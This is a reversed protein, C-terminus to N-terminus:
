LSKESEPISAELLPDEPPPKRHLTSKSRTVTSTSPKESITPFAIGQDSPEPNSNSHERMEGKVDANPVSTAGVSPRRLSAAPKHGLIPEPVESGFDYSFGASPPSVLVEPPAKDTESGQSASSQKRNPRRNTIMEPPHYTQGKNEPHKEDKYYWKGLKRLTNNKENSAQSESEEMVLGNVSPTESASPEMLSGDSLCNTEDVGLTHTSKAKRLRKSLDNITSSLRTKTLNLQVPTENTLDTRFSLNDDVEQSTSSLGLTSIVLEADARSPSMSEAKSQGPEAKQESGSLETHQRRYEKDWVGGRVLETETNYFVFDDWHPLVLSTKVAEKLKKEISNTIINYSMQRSSIVPEIKINMAPESEFTYWMRASPPPKIKILMPGQLKELTMSLLVDMERPKFRSGLNINVKTALQASMEGFYHVYLSVLLDGEPNIEKLVPFTIFPAGHGARVKTIQFKDLFGPTKMKNLKKELRAVLYNQMVDTHQLSLFLRNIVANFWKTHLQGEASYLTQILSVMHRTEFHLTKAQISPDLAPPTDSDTKSAKIFTFYWDEKEINYDTYIFFSGPPAPLKSKKNLVDQLTISDSEEWDSEGMSTVNDSLRRKRKWDKRLLAIASYKTFLQGETLNRPWLSVVYNSLVIVHKVDKLKEDKYLFLNGHKLVAYYRHKKNGGKPPAGAAPALTISAADSDNVSSVEGNSDKTKAGSNKVLKYLSSYALKGEQSDAVLQTSSNILDTSELFENTVIIWGQKYADLGSLNQEELESAKLGPEEEDSEPAKPQLYVFAVLLLPIFTVGGLLYAYILDLIYM